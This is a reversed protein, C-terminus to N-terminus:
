TTSCPKITLFKLFLIKINSLLILPCIIGNTPGFALFTVTYYPTFDTWSVQAPSPLITIPTYKVPRDAVENDHIGIHSPILLLQIFRNSHNLYNIYSKILFVLLSIKSNFPNSVFTQLCSMSDTAILYNGSDTTSILLLAEYIAYCEATFSSSTPPSIILSLSM